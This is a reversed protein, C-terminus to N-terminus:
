ANIKDWDPEVDNLDVTEITRWESKPDGSGFAGIMKVGAHKGQPDCYSSQIHMIHLEAEFVYAYECGSGAASEETMVCAPESDPYPEPGTTESTDIPPKHGLVLIDSAGPTEPIVPRGAREWYSPVPTKAETYYQRFHEWNLKGCTACIRYNDDPPDGEPLSWDKNITSWGAPHADILYELM